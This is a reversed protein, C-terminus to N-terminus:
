SLTICGSRLVSRTVHDLVVTGAKAELQSVQKDVADWYADYHEEFGEPAGESPQVMTVIYVKRTMMIDGTTSEGASGIEEAAM